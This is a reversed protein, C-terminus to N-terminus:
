MNNRQDIYSKSKSTSNHELSTGTHLRECLQKKFKLCIFFWIVNKVIFHLLANGDSLETVSHHRRWAALFQVVIKSALIFNLKGVNTKEILIRRIAIFIHCISGSMDQLVNPEINYGNSYLVCLIM